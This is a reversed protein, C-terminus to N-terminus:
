RDGKTILYFAMSHVIGGTAGRMEFIRRGDCEYFTTGMPLGKRLMDLLMCEVTDKYNPSFQICYVFERDNPRIERLKSFVDAIKMILFPIQGIETNGISPILEGGDPNFIYPNM